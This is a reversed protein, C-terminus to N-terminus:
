ESARVEQQFTHLAKKIESLQMDLRADISGSSTRIICGGQEVSYDPFIKVEVQGNDVALLQKRQKQVFPFDEPSVGISLSDTEYVDSLTQKILTILADPATQLEQQLVKKAIAIALELVFPEAERILEAKEQYALELISAAKQLESAYQAKADNRGDEIGLLYGEQYGRRKEEELQILFQEQERNRWDELEIRAAERQKELEHEIDNSVPDLIVPSDMELADRVPAPVPVGVVVRGTETKVNFSKLLRSSM